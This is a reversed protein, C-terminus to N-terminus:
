KLYGVFYKYKNEDVKKYCFETVRELIFINNLIKRIRHTEINQESIIFLTHNPAYNVAEYIMERRSPIEVDIDINKLSEKIDKPIWHVPDITVVSSPRHEPIIKINSYIAQRKQMLKRADDITAPEGNVLTYLILYASLYRKNDKSYPFYIGNSM